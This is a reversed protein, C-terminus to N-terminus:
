KGKYNKYYETYDPHVTQNPTELVEIYPSKLHTLRYVVFLIVFILTGLFLLFALKLIGRNM